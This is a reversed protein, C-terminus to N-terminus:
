FKKKIGFQILRGLTAGNQYGDQSAVINQQLYIPPNANFVNNVNLTFSLGDLTGNGPVDYKFFLDIVNYSKVSTQTVGTGVAPNLAYGGNHSLTAQARFKGIQTGLSSRFKFRSNNADLQGTFPITSVAQQNRTLEYDANVNFDVSGFGTTAVYNAGVDLGSVKYNGFNNKRGDILVYCGGGCSTGNIQNSQGVVAAIQAATPNFTIASTGLFNQYFTSGTFNPISIVGSYNINWYTTSLHLGHVFPPDIDIGLSWSTSKQPKIGPQSGLVVVQAAGTAPPVPVAVGNVTTGQISAPPNLFTLSVFNASTVSERPDDALSPAVFSKGYAARLKVWTIPKWTLGLKPNFTGGFDSYDDYRGAASFTLQELGATRNSSGFLPIVLEGFASKVNRSLSASVLPAYPAIVRGGPVAIGAVTTPGVTLGAFGTNETGPIITGNRAVFTDNNYEAGVAVKVAGGPLSVLDGDLILRGNFQRQTTRGYLEFNSVAALTTPDSASVNYPDFLGATIANNLSTTDAQTNAYKTLSEGYSALARLQWGHGLKATFSPAIGYTYLSINQHTADNAGWQYYVDQTEGFTAFFGSSAKNANFIPSSLFGFKALFSPGFNTNNIFAGTTSYNERNTYFAKVDFTLSDSLEQSLGALVSHRHERPYISVNKSDDCQNPAAGPVRAGTASLAFTGLVAGPNPGFPFTNGVTVNGPSCKFSTATIGDITTNPQFVYSRDRGLLQDHQSYNYSIYASGNSWSHGAMFSADFTKYNDAFGYHADAELGKFKKKTIFNIVGAVADSGYIASGGDPVIEVREIAGPPVIDADPSTVSIGAGVVRHGDVLVLTPSSGSTNFGPLNRLNPRNTTVANSAGVPAQFNNFSGLQPITQLLQAVTSAGSEEVSKSTVGIVNTGAPAVGRILTGTVIIDTDSAKTDTKTSPASQAFAPASLAMLSVGVLALKHGFQM